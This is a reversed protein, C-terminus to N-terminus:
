REEGVESVQARRGGERAGLKRTRTLRGIPEDTETASAPTSRHKRKQPFTWVDKAGCMPRAFARVCPRSQIDGAPVPRCARRLDRDTGAEGGLPPAEGVTQAHLSGRVSSDM